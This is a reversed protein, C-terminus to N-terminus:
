EGKLSSLVAPFEDMLGIYNVASAYFTVAKLLDAAGVLPNPLIVM